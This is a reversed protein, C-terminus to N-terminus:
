HHHLAQHSSSHLPTHLYLSSPNAPSAQKHSQKKKNDQLSYKSIWHSTTKLEIDHHFGSLPIVFSTTVLLSNMRVEGRLNFSYDVVASGYNFGSRMEGLINESTFIAWSVLDTRPPLLCSRCAHYRGETLQTVGFFTQREPRPRM